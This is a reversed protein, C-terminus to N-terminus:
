ILNRMLIVIFRCNYFEDIMFQMKCLIVLDEKPVKPITVVAAVWCLRQGAVWREMNGHFFMCLFM